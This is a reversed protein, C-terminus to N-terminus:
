YRGIEEFHIDPFDVGDRIRYDGITPNVFIPNEDPVFVTNDEFASYRVNIEENNGFIEGKKISINGTCVVSSNLFSEAEGIRDLDMTIEFYEPWMGLAKAKVEPHADYYDFASKWMIYGYDELIESYDGTRLEEDALRHGEAHVVCESADYDPSIFVNNKTYNLKSIGNNM